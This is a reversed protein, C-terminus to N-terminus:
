KHHSYHLRCPRATHPFYYPSGLSSGRQGGMHCRCTDAFVSSLLRAGHCIAAIIKQQGDMERVFDITAKCRRMIDPSYGGPIVVAHYDQAIVQQSALDSVMPYGHKSTYEVGKESGVLDVQFRAEKLRLYPYHLELDEYMNEILVAVKKM